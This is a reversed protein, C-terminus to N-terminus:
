GGDVEAGPENDLLDGERAGMGARHELASAQLAPSVVFVALQTEGGKIRKLIEVRGQHIVYMETGLDGERFIYDGQEFEVLHGAQAQDTPESM